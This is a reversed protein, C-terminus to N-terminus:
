GGAGDGWARVVTGRPVVAIREDDARAADPPLERGLEQATEHGIVAFGATASSSPTPVPGAPQAAGHVLPSPMRRVAVTM